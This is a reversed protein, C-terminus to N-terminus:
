HHYAITAIYYENCWASDGIGGRHLMLVTLKLTPPAPSAVERVNEDRSATKVVFEVNENDLGSFQLHQQAYASLPVDIVTSAVYYPREIGIHDCDEYQLFHNDQWPRPQEDTISAFGQSLERTNTPSSTYNSHEVTIKIRM